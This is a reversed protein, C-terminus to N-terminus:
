NYGQEAYVEVECVVLKPTTKYLIVYSTVNVHKCYLYRRESVATHTINTVFVNFDNPDFSSPDITTGTVM